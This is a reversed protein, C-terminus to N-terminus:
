AHEFLLEKEIPLFPNNLFYPIFLKIIAQSLLAINHFNAEISFKVM